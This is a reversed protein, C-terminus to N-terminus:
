TREAASTAATKAGAPWAAGGVTVACAAGARPAAGSWVVSVAEPSAAAYLHSSGPPMVAAPEVTVCTKGAPLCTTRTTPTDADPSCVCAATVTTAIVSDSFAGATARSPCRITSAAAEPRRIPSPDGHQAVPNGDGAGPQPVGAAETCANPRAHRAAVGNAVAADDRRRRRDRDPGADLDLEM